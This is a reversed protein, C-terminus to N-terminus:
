ATKKVEKKKIYRRLSNIHRLLLEAKIEAAEEPPYLKEALQLDAELYSERIALAINRLSTKIKDLLRSSQHSDASRMSVYISDLFEELITILADYSKDDSVVAIMELKKFIPLVQLDSRNYYSLLTLFTESLTKSKTIRKAYNAVEPPLNAIYVGTPSEDKEDM